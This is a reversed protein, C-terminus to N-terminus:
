VQIKAELQKLLQKSTNHSRMIWSRSILHAGHCGPVISQLFPLAENDGEDEIM